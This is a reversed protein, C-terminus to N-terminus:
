NSKGAKMGTMERGMQEQTAETMRALAAKAKDLQGKLDDIEKDKVTGLERLDKAHQEKAQVKENDQVKKWEAWRQCNAQWDACAKESLALNRQTQGLTTRLGDLEHQKNMLKEDCDARLQDMEGKHELKLVRVATEHAGRMDTMQDRAAKVDLTLKHIKERREQAADKPGPQTKRIRKPKADGDEEAEASQGPVAADPQAPQAREAQGDDWSQGSQGWALGSWSQGRQSGSWGQNWAWAMIRASAKGQWTVKYQVPRAVQWRTFLEQSLRLM